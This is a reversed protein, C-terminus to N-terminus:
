GSDPNLLVFAPLWRVAASAYDTPSVLSIFEMGIVRYYAWERAASATLILGTLAAVAAPARRLFSKFLM